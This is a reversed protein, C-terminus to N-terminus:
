MDFLYSVGVAVLYSNPSGVKYKENEIKSKNGIIATVSGDIVLNDQIKYSVGAGVLPRIKKSDGIKTKLSPLGEITETIEAKATLYALGVKGYATLDTGTIPMRGVGSIDWANTKLQYKLEGQINGIQTPIMGKIKYENTAYHTYGGEIAFNENFQWGIFIRGGLGGESSKWSKPALFGKDHLIEFQEKMLKGEDARAFGLQGGVYIGTQAGALGSASILGAAVLGAFTKKLM